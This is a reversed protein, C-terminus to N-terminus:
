HIMTMCILFKLSKTNNWLIKKLDASKSPDWVQSSIDLENSEVIKKLVQKFVPNDIGGRTVDNKMEIIVDEPVMHIDFDRTLEKGARFNNIIETGLVPDGANSLDIWDSVAKDLRDGREISEGRIRSMSISDYLQKGVSAGRNM